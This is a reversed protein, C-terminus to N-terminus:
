DLRVVHHEPFHRTRREGWRGRSYIVKLQRPSEYHRGFFKDSARVDPTKGDVYAQMADTVPLLMDDNPGSGWGAYHVIIKLRGMLVYVAMGCTGIALFARAANASFLFTLGVGLFLASLTCVDSRPM